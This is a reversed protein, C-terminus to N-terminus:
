REQRESVGSVALVTYVRLTSRTKSRTLRSPGRKAAFAEDSLRRATRVDSEDTDALVHHIDRRKGHTSHVSLIEVPEGDAPGFWHPLRTNFEAVEGPGMTLDHRGLILRMKGSLVYLWEYGDHTRFNRRNWRTPRNSSDCAPPLM